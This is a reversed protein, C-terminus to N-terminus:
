MGAPKQCAGDCKGGCGCGSKRCPCLKCGLKKALQLGIAAAVISLSAEPTGFQLGAPGMHTTWVGLLAALALLAMVVFVIGGVIKCAM